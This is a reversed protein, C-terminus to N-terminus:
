RADQISEIYALLQDIAEPELRFQPMMPHGVFVGEAFSEALAEIEYRAGLTRLPPSMPNPSAGTRGIAHCSACNAQAVRLGAAVLVAQETRDVPAPAAAPTACGGALGALLMAALIRKDIM